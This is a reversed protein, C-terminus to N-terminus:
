RGQDRPLMPPPDYHFAEHHNFEDVRTFHAGDQSVYPFREDRGASLSGMHEEEIRRQIVPDRMAREADEDVQNACPPCLERWGLNLEQIRRGCGQCYSM